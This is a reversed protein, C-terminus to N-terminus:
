MKLRLSLSHTFGFAESNVLAYDVSVMNLSISGGLSLGDLFSYSNEFDHKKYGARITFLSIKREVGLYLRFVNNESPSVELDVSPTFKFLNAKIGARIRLPLDEEVEGSGWYSNGRMPSSIFNILNVGASLGFPLKKTTLVGVDLAFGNSTFTDISQSLIKAKIGLSFLNFINKSIVIMLVNDSYSFSGLVTSQDTREIDGIMRQTFGFGVSFIPLSYCAAVFYNNIGITSTNYYSGVVELKKIKSVGAPNYFVASADDSLATFATGMGLSRASLGVDFLSNMNCFCVIPTMFIVTIVFFKKM